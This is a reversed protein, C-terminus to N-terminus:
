CRTSEVFVHFNRAVLKAAARWSLPERRDALPLPLRAVVRALENPSETGPEASAFFLESAAGYVLYRPSMSCALRAWGLWNRRLTPRSVYAARAWGKARAFIPQQAAVAQLLERRALTASRGTIRALTWRWLAEADSVADQWQPFHAPNGAIEGELKLDTCQSVLSAFRQLPIPAPQPDHSAALEKLRAARDRYSPAYQGTALLYCAAMALYLKAIRYRVVTQNEEFGNADAASELQEIMRNCLFWWGDEQPIDAATFPPILHLTDKRGWLVIGRERLEYAYIHPKMGRLQASDSAVVAIKCRIGQELLSAEIARELESVQLRAPGDFVVLFTADGLARWGAGERKLTAEGRSMSGTLVIARASPGAAAACLRTGESVITAKAAECDGSPADVAVVSGHAHALPKEKLM